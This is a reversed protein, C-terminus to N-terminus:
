YESGEKRFDLNFDQERFEVNYKKLIDFLHQRYNIYEDDDNFIESYAIESHKHFPKLRDISVRKQNGSEPDGIIVTGDTLRQDIIWPGTWKQRWKGSRMQKDGIFYLVDKGVGFEHQYRKLKKRTIKYRKAHTQASVYTYKKWDDRYQQNVFKIQEILNSLYQYDQVSLGFKIDDRLNDLNSQIRGIDSIDNMNTGFMLMNPSFTTFRPRRQNFSFQIFPLLCEITRWSEEFQDQRTLRQDLLLNYHNLISQVFGIIREVKGISRHNRPEALELNIGSARTLAKMIKSNFASGWDSEFTDFWGFIPIWNRLIAEVVTPADTGHTPILMTYGTAADVLVLIYYDGFVPGLFDAFLHTRPKPLRRITLPARHRISGKTFQCSICNKCFKRIDYKMTGWWFKTSISNLTSTYHFHHLQLNHHAYDMVKGRINFPVVAKWIRDDIQQEYDFVQLLDDDNIRVFGLRLKHLIYPDWRHLYRLDQDDAKSGQLYVKRLVNLTNDSKQYHVFRKVNFIDLDRRHGFIDHMFQERTKIRARTDNFEANLYEANIDAKTQKQQSKRSKSRTQMHHQQQIDVPQDEDIDSLDNTPDYEEDITNITFQSNTAYARLILQEQLSRQQSERITQAVIHQLKPTLQSTTQLMNVIKSTFTTYPGSKFSNEDDNILEDKTSWIYDNIRDRHLYPANMRYDHMMQQWNDDEAQKHQQYKQIKTLSKYNSHNDNPLFTKSQLISLIKHKHQQQLKFRLQDLAQTERELEQIQQPTLDKNKTDQSDVPRLVAGFDPNEKVLKITYRSLGDAIPNELGKVHYSDFTFMSVKNRLRVLQQQTIYSLDKWKRGFINAVPENDTSIIFKRKMLHFQWHEMCAVIGYAEHVMSHCHRLQTPMIKSWMDVIVWKSKGTTQDIQSQWLVGGIGYNCADTQLCFLGDKTPHHLLQLNALLWQLQKWALKAETTWKLRKARKGNEDILIEEKLLNLWYTFLKSYLVHQDIYGLAGLFQKMESMVRPEGMLLMKKQYAQSVIRGIMSYLFAFSTSTDIAPWFKSPNLYANFKRIIFALRDLQEIIQKTGGKFPHKICIDDIYALCYKVYLAVQNMIKQAEPAANMWGYTLCSMQYLGLPTSAVAFKRDLPHLPICDFCNKIDAMTVLGKISHLDTFDKLLPMNAPMLECWQNVVRGDFAPRYRVIVGEKKKPVMTYPICNLSFDIRKWFGNKENIITYNIMHLRKEESIPYQRAYMTKDRHEPKIGLRAFPVTMTRRSYTHTAFIDKNRKIWQCIATYLGNFQPGYIRAYDKLYNFNNWKLEKNNFKQQARIIEDEDALFSQKAMIFLCRNYIPAQQQRQEHIKTYNHSLTGILTPQQPETINAILTPALMQTQTLTTLANQQLTTTTTTNSTPETTELLNNNIFVGSKGDRYNIHDIVQCVHSLESSVPRLNPMIDVHDLNALTEYDGKLLLDFEVDTVLDREFTDDLLEDEFADQIIVEEECLNVIEVTDPEAEIEDDDDIFSQQWVGNILEPASYAALDTGFGYRHLVKGNARLEDYHSPLVTANVIDYDRAWKWQNIKKFRHKQYWNVYNVNPKGDGFQTQKFSDLEKEERQEQNDLELDIEKQEPHKFIPPTEDKFQYGFARLLSIDAIIDVPLKDMLYMRHKLITGRKTPFSMWLVYKPVLWGSPTYVKNTRTNQKIYDRFHEFAWSTNVCGANAGSDAFLKTKVTTGNQYTVPVYLWWQTPENKVIIIDDDGYVDDIDNEIFEIDNITSVICVKTKEDVTTISNSIFQAQYQDPVEVDEFIVDKDQKLEENFLGPHVQNDEYHSNTYNHLNDPDVAGVTKNKDQYPPYRSSSGIYSKGLGDGRVHYVLNNDIPYGDLFQLTQTPQAKNEFITQEDEISESDSTDFNENGYTYFDSSGTYGYEFERENDIAQTTNVQAQTLVESKSLQQKTINTNTESAHECDSTPFTEAPTPTEVVQAFPSNIQRTTTITTDSNYSSDNATDISIPRDIIISNIVSHAITPTDNFEM